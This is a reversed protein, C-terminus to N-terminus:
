TSGVGDGTVPPCTTPTMSKAPQIKGNLTVNGFVASQGSSPAVLYQHFIIGNVTAPAPLRNGYSLAGQNITYRTFGNGLDTASSFEQRGYFQYNSDAGELIVYLNSNQDAGQVDFSLSQFPTNNLGDWEAGAANGSTASGVVANIFLQGSVNTYSATTPASGYTYTRLSGKSTTANATTGLALCALMCAAVSKSVFFSRM